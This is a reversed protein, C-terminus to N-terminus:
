AIESIVNESNTDFTLLGEVSSDLAAVKKGNKTWVSSCGASQFNDCFGVCNSMLVPMLFRNAINPYHMNAKNIGETSKAVSAVYITAGLKKANKSHTLQLSEYCISPAVKEGGVEIIYQKEGEVFYPLEDAHLQQKSYVHRPCHPTFIIMGINVGKLTNIPLGAGIVINYENCLKQLADM